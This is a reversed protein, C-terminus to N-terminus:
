NGVHVVDDPTIVFNIDNMQNNTEITYNDGSKFVQGFVQSYFDGDAKINTLYIAKNLNHATRVISYIGKYTFEPNDWEDETYRDKFDLIVYGSM